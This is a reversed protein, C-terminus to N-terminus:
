IAGGIQEALETPEFPRGDYRRIVVAAEINAKERLLSAFQGQRSQEVVIAKRDRYKELEWVPLPELYAPQVVTARISGVRLAELVSMATSGYTFIVTGGDGWVNVTSKGKLYERIAEGKRFRKDAMRVSIDPLETTIGLEDHEYSNWKILEPAPPFLLPSVGDPTDLYRKYDGGSSAKHEAWATRAPDIAVTMTGETMHKETLLVGPTQFRWVLSLMEATLYFAEAVSGPSAVIRPFEGHGQSLAFKLDGQSTYTPLGTSPGPRSALFFLIPAETMGALSVSEEMLSFGGGSSGVMVRAGAFAAGIAMNAVAIESEPHVVTVGLDPGRAALFHLLSTTPTMPYAMYIDLGATVAGLAIAESGSLFRQKGEGPQLRFRGGIKPFVADYISNAYAINNELDRRYEQEILTKLREKDFGLAACTTAPCAVGIRLDPMPYKKAEATMPIGIGEAESLEDSNYVIIGGPALHEKHIPYSRADLAVVLQAQMYHSSIEGPASSVVTFNHGGRILSPYDDMQFVGRGMGVLLGAAVSGAKKVGQGAKGGVIVTFVDKGM